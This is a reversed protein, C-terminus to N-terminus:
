SIVEAGEWRCKENNKLTYKNIGRRSVSHMGAYLRELEGLATELSTHLQERLIQSTRLEAMAESPRM